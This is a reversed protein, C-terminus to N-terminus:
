KKGLLSVKNKLKTNEEEIRNIAIHCEDHKNRLKAHEGKLDLHQEYLNNYKDKLNSFEKKLKEIDQRLTESYKMVAESIKLEGTVKINRTEAKAKQKNLLYSTIAGIGGGGLVGGGITIITLWDIM